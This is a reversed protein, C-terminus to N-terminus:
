LVLIATNTDKFHNFYCVARHFANFCNTKDKVFFKFLISSSQVYALISFMKFTKIILYNKISHRIVTNLDSVTGLTMCRTSTFFDITCSNFLQMLYLFINEPLAFFWFHLMDCFCLYFFRM